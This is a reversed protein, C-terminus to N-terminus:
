EDKVLAEVNNGDPDTIFACFASYEPWYRPTHREEAGAHVAAAFFAEVAEQSTASFAIHCGSTVFDEARELSLSPTDDEARWFEAVRGDEYGLVVGLPQLAAEYIARSRALDSAFVGVHHIVGDTEGV